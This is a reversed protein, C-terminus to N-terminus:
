KDMPYSINFFIGLEPAVINNSTDALIRVDDTKERKEFPLTYM